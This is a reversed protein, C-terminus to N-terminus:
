GLLVGLNPTRIISPTEVGGHPDRIGLKGLLDDFQRKGLAKTFIDALQATTSVYSPIIAGSLIEDRVLHRDIQIHKTKEHFVPNRTIHLSAQNDCFLKIPQSHQFGLTALISKIWLLESLPPWRITSQKPLPVLSPAKNRLKGPSPLLDWSYSGDQSQVNPCLAVAGIM